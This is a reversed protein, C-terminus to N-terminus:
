LNFGERRCKHPHIEGAPRDNGTLHTHTSQEIRRARLETQLRLLMKDLQRVARRTEDGHPCRVTVAQEGPPWDIPEEESADALSSDIVSDQVSVFALAVPRDPVGESVISICQAWTM